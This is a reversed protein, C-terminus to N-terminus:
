RLINAIFRVTVQVYWDNIDPTSASVGVAYLQVFTPVRSLTPGGYTESFREYAGWPLRLSQRYIRGPEEPDWAEEYGSITLIQANDGAPDVTQYVNAGIFQNPLRDAEDIFNGGRMTMTLEDFECDPLHGIFFNQPGTQGAGTTNPDVLLALAPVDYGFEIAFGSRVQIYEGGNWDQITPPPNLYDWAVDKGFQGGGSIDAFAITFPGSKDLWKKGADGLWKDMGLRRRMEGFPSKDQFSMVDDHVRQFNRRARNWSKKLSGM